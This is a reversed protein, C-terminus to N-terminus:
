RPCPAARRNRCRSGSSGTDPQPKAYPMWDNAVHEDKCAIQCCYCGNCIDFIWCLTSENRRVAEGQEVWAEFRLGAGPDYARAFAEPNAKRWEDWETAPSRPSRWWIVAPPRGWATRPLLAPPLSPTSPAAATWRASFSRTLRPRRSRYLGRRARLRETVYAGGLM